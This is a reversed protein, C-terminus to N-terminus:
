KSEATSAMKPQDTQTKKPKRGTIRTPKEVVDQVDSEKSELASTEVKNEEIQLDQIAKDVKKVKIRSIILDAAATAVSAIAAPVKRPDVLGKWGLKTSGFVASYILFYLVPDKLSAAAGWIEGPSMFHAKVSLNLAQQEELSDVLADVGGENSPLQTARALAEIESLVAFVKSIAVNTISAIRKIRLSFFIEDESRFFPYLVHHLERWYEDVCFVTRHSGLARRLASNAISREVTPGWMVRRHLRHTMSSNQENSTGAHWVYVKPQDDVFAGSVIRGFRLAGPSPVVVLDGVQMEMAFDEVQSWKSRKQGESLKERLSYASFSARLDDWDKFLEVTKQQGRLIEDLHGISILGFRRFHPLFFGNTARVVWYRQSEPPCYILNEEM